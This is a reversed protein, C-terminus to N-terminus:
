LQRRWEEVFPENKFYTHALTRLFSFGAKDTRYSYSKIPKGKIAAKFDKLENPLHINTEVYMEM